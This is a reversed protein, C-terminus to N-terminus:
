QHRHLLLEGGPRVAPGPRRDIAGGGHDGVGGPRCGPLKAREEEVLGKVSRIEDLTAIMPFMMRISTARAPACSPASRPACSRRAPGARHAGRPHRADPEGGAAHASLGAAQGRGRGPHPHDAAQRGPGRRDRRLDPTQEDETPANARDLYLFESRLLGVGEAGLTMGKQADELGGINAVVEIATATPPPPPSSPPPWTRPRRRAGHAGQGGHHPAIEDPNPNIRLQGKGGDLIVDSGNALELARPEIGAVAPIDLARALIAVHSTAGGGVTAFGLVEKPDLKATDSPALDEAILISGPPIKPEEVPQGTLIGLVRRGVDRLDAARGAMVANKLKALREAQTTYARQWAYAASKGKAMASEAIDLLGPDELM